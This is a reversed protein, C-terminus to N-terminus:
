ELEERTLAWTKGYDKVNVFGHYPIQLTFQRIDRILNPRDTYVRNGIKFWAGDRLAKFLTILDIGFEDEICKYEYCEKIAQECIAKHQAKPYVSATDLMDLDKKTLRM